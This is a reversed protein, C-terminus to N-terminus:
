ESARWKRSSDAKQRISESSRPRAREAKYDYAGDFDFTGFAKLIRLRRRRKKKPFL